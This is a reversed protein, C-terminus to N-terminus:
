GEPYQLQLSLVSVDVLCMSLHTSSKHLERKNGTLRCINTNFIGKEVVWEM